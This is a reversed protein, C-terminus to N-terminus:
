AGGLRQRPVVATWRAFRALVSAGRNFAVAAFGHAVVAVAPPVERTYYTWCQRSTGWYELFIGLGAGALFVVVDRRPNPCHITVALMLAIVVQSAALHAYPRIFDTMWLVFGPMVVWYTWVFARPPPARGRLRGAGEVVFDVVKGMRDVTIAAIPWAPLIWLPPREQTFYFWLGTNTGWWEIVAGGAAGVALLLADRRPEVRWCILAAMWAWIVALLWDMDGNADLLDSWHYGVGAATTVLVALAVLSRRDYGEAVFRGLAAAEGPRRVAGASAM